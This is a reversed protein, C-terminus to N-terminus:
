NSLTFIKQMLVWKEGPGATPLAQQYEWMLKEWQMVMENKADMEAHRMEAVSEAALEQNVQDIIQEDEATFVTNADISFFGFGFQSVFTAGSGRNDDCIPAADTIECCENLLERM